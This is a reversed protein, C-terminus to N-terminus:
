AFSCRAWGPLRPPLGCLRRVCGMRESEPGLADPGRPGDDRTRGFEQDHEAKSRDNRRRHALTDASVDIAGEQEGLDGKQATRTPKPEGRDMERQTACECVRHWEASRKQVPNSHDFPSFAGDQFASIAFCGQQVEPPVFGVREPRWAMHSVARQLIVGGDVTLKPLIFLLAATSRM